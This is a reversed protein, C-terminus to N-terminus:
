QITFPALNKIKEYIEKETSPEKFYTIEKVIDLNKPVYVKDVKYKEKLSSQAEDIYNELIEKDDVYGITEGNLYVRYLEEPNIMKKTEFLLITSSIILAIVTIVINKTNIKKKKNM